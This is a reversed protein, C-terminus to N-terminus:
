QRLFVEVVRWSRGERALSFVRGNGCEPRACTFVVAGNESVDYFAMRVSDAQGSSESLRSVSMISEGENLLPAMFSVIGKVEWEELDGRVRLKPGCASLVVLVALGLCAVSRIQPM